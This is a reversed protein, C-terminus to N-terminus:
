MYTSFRCIIKINLEAKEIGEIILIRGNLAAEVACQNAYVVSSAIIERRQKIDSETTDRTLCLYEVERQLLEAFSMALTRRFAGPPSGILFADQRLNDKQMLWRFYSLYSQSDSMVGAYSQLYGRPVKEPAKVPKLERISNGIRVYTKSSVSDAAVTSNTTQNEDVPMSSYARKIGMPPLNSTANLIRNLVQLRRLSTTTTESIGAM